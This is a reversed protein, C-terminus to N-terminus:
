AGLERARGPDTKALVAAYVRTAGAKKLVRAIEELTAGTTSVDDVVCLMSGTPTAASRPRYKGRVNKARDASELGVQRRQKGQEAMLPLVPLGLQRGVQKSLTTVPSFSRGMRTRWSTPVPVLGEVECAWPQCQIAAALLEGLPRDLRQRGAFKYQLVLERIARDYEGVRAIGDFGVPHIRCLNCGDALNAPEAVTLGCRPCYPAQIARGIKLACDVCWPGEGAGLRRECLMCGAPLVLDALVRIPRTLLAM